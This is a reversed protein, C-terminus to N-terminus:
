AKSIVWQNPKRILLLATCTCSCLLLLVAMLNSCFPTALSILKFPSSATPKSFSLTSHYNFRSLSMPAMSGHLMAPDIIRLVLPYVNGEPCKSYDKFVSEEVLDFTVNLAVHFAHLVGAFAHTSDLHAARFHLPVLIHSWLAEWSGSVLRSPCIIFKWGHFNRKEARILAKLSPVGQGNNIM